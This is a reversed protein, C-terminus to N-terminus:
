RLQETTALASEAPEGVIAGCPVRLVDDHDALPHSCPHYLTEVKRGVPDVGDVQADVQLPEPRVGRDRALREEEVGRTRPRVLVVRTEVLREGLESRPM